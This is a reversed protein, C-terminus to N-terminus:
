PSFFCPKLFFLSIVTQLHAPVEFYLCKKLQETGLTDQSAKQIKIRRKRGRGREEKKIYKLEADRKRSILRGRKSKEVRKRYILRLFHM